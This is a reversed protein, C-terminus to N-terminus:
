GPVVCGLFTQCVILMRNDPINCYKVDRRKFTDTRVCNHCITREKVATVACICIRAVRAIKVFCM